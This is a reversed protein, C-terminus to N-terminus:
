SIWRRYYNHYTKQPITKKQKLFGILEEITVTEYGEEKLFKLHRQFNQPHITTESIGETDFHHYMLVPIQVLSDKYIRKYSAYILIIGLICFLTYFLRKRM